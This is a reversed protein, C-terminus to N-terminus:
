ENVLSTLLRHATSQGVNLAAAVDSVGLNPQGHLLWLVQLVNESSTRRKQFNSMSSNFWKQSEVSLFM